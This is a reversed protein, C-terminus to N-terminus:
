QVEVSVGIAPQVAADAPPGSPPGGEVDVLELEPHVHGPVADLLQVRLSM